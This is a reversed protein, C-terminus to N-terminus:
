LSTVPRSAKKKKKKTTPCLSTTDTNSSVLWLNTEPNCDWGETKKLIDLNVCQILHKNGVTSIQLM